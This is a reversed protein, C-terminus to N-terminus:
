HELDRLITRLRRERFYDDVDEIHRFKELKKNFEPLKGYLHRFVVLLASELLEWSHLNQGKQCTLIRVETGKIGRFRKRDSFARLSKSASNSAPRGEGKKTTGIYIVRSRGSSYKIPKDALLVYVMKKTWDRSRRVTMVPKSNCKVKLKAM